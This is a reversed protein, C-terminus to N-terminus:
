RTWVFTNSWLIKKKDATLKGTVHWSPVEIQDGNVKGADKLGTETTVFLNTGDSREIKGVGAGAKWDGEIDTVQISSTYSEAIAVSPKSEPTQPATKDSCAITFAIATLVCTITLIKM